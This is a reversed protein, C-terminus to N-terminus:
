NASLIITKNVEANGGGEAGGRGAQCVRHLPL